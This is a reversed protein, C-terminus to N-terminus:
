SEGDARSSPHDVRERERSYGRYAKSQKIRKKKERGWGSIRSGAELIVVVAVVAGQPRVSPNQPRSRRETQRLSENYKAM